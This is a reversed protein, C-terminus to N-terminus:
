TKKLLKINGWALLLGMLFWYERMIPVQNANTDTMGELHLGLFILIGIMGCSVSDINKEKRYLLIMRYLFYGHLLLFATIGVVGGEALFKFFNNHPHGHGKRYDEDGREKALPSIYKTNYMYGFQDQGVGHVPYDKFMAFASQWMLLRESNSQYKTDVITAIRAQVFQSGVAVSGCVMSFFLCVVAVHKRYKKELVLLSVLVVVFTLWGGRTGSLFLMIVTFALMSGSFWRSVCLRDRFIMYIIPLILLLQSAYLTAAGNMGKPRLNGLVCFQYLGTIDNIFVSILLAGLIGLLQQQNKLYGIGMLLPIFRYMTAWVDGLSEMVNVSFLAILLQVMLFISVIKWINKDAFFFKGERIKQVLIIVAALAICISTAGTSFNSVFAFLMMVIYMSKEYISM